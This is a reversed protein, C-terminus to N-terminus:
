WRNADTVKVFRSVMNEYNWLTVMFADNLDQFVKSLFQNFVKFLTKSKINNYNQSMIKKVLKKEKNYRERAKDMCETYFLSPTKQNWEFTKSYTIYEYMNKIDECVQMYKWYLTENNAVINQIPTWREQEFRNYIQWPPTTYEKEIGNIYDRWIKWQEDPAIWYTLGEIADLNRFAVDMLHNVFIKTQPVSNDKNCYKELNILAQNYIEEKIIKANQLAKEKISDNKISNIYWCDQDWFSFWIFMIVVLITFTTKSM